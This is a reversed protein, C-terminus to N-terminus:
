KVLECAGDGAEVVYFDADYGIKERYSRGVTDIFYGIRDKEILSVTCGGFGAGTMRSGLVGETEQALAVLTDLEVGTVEFDEKLSQHSANMLQGFAGVNGANLEDHAKITRLNETIVHNARKLQIPDTILHKHTEFTELDLDCLYKVKLVTNLAELASECERRRENYKSDGLGRRKNTNSIILAYHGLDLHAYHSVMSSTNLLIGQEKKGMAIAFQDMIGCNVGIYNNESKQALLAMEEMTEKLAFLEKLVLAMLVEISASSSLGAGNPINGYFAIDWGKDFIKGEDLFTQVIGKPYNAWDHAKNYALEDLSTEIVGLQSFNESYWRCRNDDRLRVVAYTGITLACPLVHGGNFDTYEGILNVRGPAYFLRCATTDKFVKEFIHMMKERM